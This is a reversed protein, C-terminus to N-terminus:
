TTMGHDPLYIPRNCNMVRLYKMSSSITWDAFYFVACVYLAPSPTLILLTAWVYKQLACHCILGGRTKKAPSGALESVSHTILLSESLFCVFVFCRFRLSIPLNRHLLIVISSQSPFNTKLRKDKYVQINYYLCRIRLYNKSKLLLSISNLAEFFVLSCREPMSSTAAIM